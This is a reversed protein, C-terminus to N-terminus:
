ASHSLSPALPDGTALHHGERRYFGGRRRRLLQRLIRTRVVAIFQGNRVGDGRAVPAEDQTAPLERVAGEARRDGILEDALIAQL